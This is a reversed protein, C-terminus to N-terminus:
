ENMILMSHDVGALVTPEYYATAGAQRSTGGTLVLAGKARADAVHREVIELQRPSTFPGYDIEAKPGNEGVRLASVREVLKQTFPEAVAQEVYVREVSMCVQ